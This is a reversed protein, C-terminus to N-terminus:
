YESESDSTDGCDYPYYDYDYQDEDDNFETERILEEDEDENEVQFSLNEWYKSGFEKNFKEPISFELTNEYNTNDMPVLDTGDWIQFGHTYYGLFQYKILDGRKIGEFRLINKRLCKNFYNVIIPNTTMKKIFECGDYFEYHSNFYEKDLDEKFEKFINKVYEDDLMTVEEFSRGADAEVMNKITQFIPDVDKATIVYESPYTRDKSIYSHHHFFGGGGLGHENPSM